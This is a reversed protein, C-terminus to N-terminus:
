PTHVADRTAARTAGTFMVVAFVTTVALAQWGAHGSSVPVTRSRWYLAERLLTVCYTMPNALMIKHMWGAAGQPPFFAGSLVLMPMLVLNMVAHFGQTSEMRWAMWFGLSTVAVAVLTMAAITIAVSVLGLRIGAPPALMLFLTGQGVALATAGLVKGLVIASRPAPSALVGQLFGDRRDDIISIMSFISTFLLIAALAGPFTYEAYGGAATGGGPSFSRSLGSGALVWFVLPTGLAGIVRSRQRLFRVVERRMLTMCPLWLGPAIIEASPQVRAMSAVNTSAAKSVGIAQAVPENVPVDSL